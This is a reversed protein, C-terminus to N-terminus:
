LQSGPLPLALRADFVKDPVKIKDPPTYNMKITLPPLRRTDKTFSAEGIFTRTLPLEPRTPLASTRRNSPLPLSTPRRSRVVEAV